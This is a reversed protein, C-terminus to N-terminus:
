VIPAFSLLPISHFVDTGGAAKDPLFNFVPSTGVVSRPIRIFPGSERVVFGPLSSLGMHQIFRVRCFPGAGYPCPLHGTAVSVEPPDDARCFISVTRNAIRRASFNFDKLYIRASITRRGQNKGESVGRTEPDRLLRAAGGCPSFFECFLCRNLRSM